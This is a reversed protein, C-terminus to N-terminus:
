GRIHIALRVYQLVRSDNIKVADCPRTRCNNPDYSWSFGVFVTRKSYDGGNPNERNKETKTGKLGCGIGNPNSWGRSNSGLTGSLSSWFAPKGILADNRQSDCDYVPYVVYTNVDYYKSLLSKVSSAARGIVQDDQMTQSLADMVSKDGPGFVPQPNGPVERYFLPLNPVAVRINGLFFVSGDCSSQVRKFGPISKVPFRVYKKTNTENCKQGFADRAESPATRLDKMAATFPATVTKSPKTKKGSRGNINLAKVIMSYKEGPWMDFECSLKTTICNLEFLYERPYVIYTLAGERQKPPSWSVKVRLSTPSKRTVKVNLPESPLMVQPVTASTSPSIVRPAVTPSTSPPSTSPPSTTPPTSEGVSDLKVVFADTSGSSVLNATGAGPDFDATGSFRGAVYANGLSDVAVAYGYSDGTGGFRKAWVYGGSSNLKVVFVASSVGSVLNATGFGPDFDVTWDFYGVVYTNGSSDVAVAYGYSAGTGSFQKAWVYGGSSNLKVVFAATSGSSVLNATGVGPDFDATGSFDGAVYTNGSSDVAVSSGNTFEGTGGFQKAWVYGGSSNLKVVFADRAGSPVLHAIGAGPDLWMTQTFIGAVYTNGLSDVAVSSGSVSSGLPKAWVYGGFSNLKVVFASQGGSSVFNASGAGPDFDASGTFSGAVYTNGSSDVAVSSGNTSLGGGFQKAWVYGGSSNLKVVFAATPGSSVLNATGVGPDFDASGTFSGAVYTNGSSDVAVSSGHNTGTGGFQKAWVYGGSSNLKVVFVSQGGSSVLNATGVGPDFDVTGSFDGAVYTSGSSDVAVSSMLAYGTGGFQAVTANLDNPTWAQSKGSSVVVFISVATCLM